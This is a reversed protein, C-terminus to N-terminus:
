KTMEALLKEVSEVFAPFNPDLLLTKIMNANTDENVKLNTTEYYSPLNHMQMMVNRTVNTITETQRIDAQSIDTRNLTSSISSDADYNVESSQLNSSNNANQVHVHPAILTVFDNCQEEASKFDDKSFKIRFRRFENKIKYFFLMSDSKSIARLWNSTELLTFSELVESGFKLILNLPPVVSLLIPKSSLSELIEWEGCKNSETLYINPNAKKFRGYKEIKWIKAAM